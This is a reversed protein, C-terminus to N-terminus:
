AVQKRLYIAHRVQALKVFTDSVPSDCDPLNMLERERNELENLWKDM